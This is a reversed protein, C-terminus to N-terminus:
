GLRRLEEEVDAVSIEKLRMVDVFRERWDPVMAVLRVLVTLIQDRGMHAISSTTVAKSAELYGQLADAFDDKDLGPPFFEQGVAELKKSLAGNALIADVDEPSSPKGREFDGIEMKTSVALASEEAYATQEVVLVARLLTLAEDTRKTWYLLRALCKQLHLLNKDDVGYRAACLSVAGRLVLEADDIQKNRYLCYALKESLALPRLDDAGFLHSALDLVRRWLAIAYPFYEPQDGYEADGTIDLALDSLADMLEPGAQGSEVAQRDVAQWGDMFALIDKDRYFSM